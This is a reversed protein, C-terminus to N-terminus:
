WRDPITVCRGSKGKRKRPPKLHRGSHVRIVGDSRRVGPGVSPDPRRTRLQQRRLRDGHRVGRGDNRDGASKHVRHVVIQLGDHARVNSGVNRDASGDRVRGLRLDDPRRVGTRRPPRRWARMSRALAPQCRSASDTLRRTSGALFVLVLVAMGLGGGLVGPGKKTTVHTHHRLVGPGKKTTM